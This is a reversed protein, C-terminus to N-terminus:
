ETSPRSCAPWGRIACRGKRDGCWVMLSADTDYHASPDFECDLNAVRLRGRVIRYRHASSREWWLDIRCDVKHLLERLMSSTFEYPWTMLKGNNLVLTLKDRISARWDLLKQYTALQNAAVGNQNRMVEELNAIEQKWAKLKDAMDGAIEPLEDALKLFKQLGADYESKLKSLKKATAEINPADIKPPVASHQRLVSDEIKEILLKTIFPLIEPEKVSWQGCGTNRHIGKCHYKVGAVHKASESRENGYLPKGCHGCYLVGTLAFGEARGSHKGSRWRRKVKIQVDDFLKRDIIADHTDKVLVYNDQGTRMQKEHNREVKGNVIRHFEGAGDRGLSLDGAYRVNQLMEHVTQYVWGKGNPSLIGKQNLEMALQHFSVDRRSFEEFIWRVVAVEDPDGLIFKQNWERPKKFREKRGIVHQKGQSDIVLRALGYPTTQGYLKGKQAATLKGLLSKNSLRVSYDHQAESLVSDVIRGTSTTWDIEGEIITVLKIGHDRLSKKTEAGEISDLRSFRSLDYCLVVQFKGKKADALLKLFDTRKETNHSGSKGEDVYWKSIDYKDEFRSTLEKQQQDISTDQQDTSMRCYGVAPVKAQSIM